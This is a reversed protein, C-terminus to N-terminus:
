VRGFHPPDSQAKRTICLLGRRQSNLQKAATGSTLEADAITGMTIQDQRSQVAIKVSAVPSDMKVIM